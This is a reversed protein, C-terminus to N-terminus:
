PLARRPAQRYASPSVGTMAKFSRSFHFADVYGLEAAVRRLPWDPEALLLLRAREVRKAQVYRMPPMGLAQAFLTAFYTPELYVQAALDALRLPEGLHAEVYRLAPGFRLLMQRRREWDPPAEPAVFGAALTTLLGHRQLAAGADGRGRLAMVADLVGALAAAAEGRLELRPPLYAFLDVGALVTMQVHAFAVTMSGGCAYEFDTDPPIIYMGGPLLDFDQGHHRCWGAGGEIQYIRTTDQPGAHKNVWRDTVTLRNITELELRLTHLIPDM